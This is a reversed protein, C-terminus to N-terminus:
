ACFEWTALTEYHPGATTLTSSYLTASSVSMFPPVESEARSLASVVPEGVRRPRRARALTVHAKFPRLELAIDVGVCARDIAAALAACEGTPDSYSAWLMRAHRAGPVPRLSSFPLEFRCIGVLERGISEIASPVSEAPVDGLFALTVHLNEASVWKEGRWEPDSERVADCAAALAARTPDPLPIGVFCRM